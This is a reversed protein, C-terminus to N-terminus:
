IIWGIYYKILYAEFFGVLIAVAVTSARSLQTWLIKQRARSEETM